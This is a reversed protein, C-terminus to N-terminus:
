QKGKSACEVVAQEAAATKKADEGARKAEAAAAKKM